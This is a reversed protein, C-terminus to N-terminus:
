VPQNCFEILKIMDDANSMKINHQKVFSKIADARAPFIGQVKRINNVQVYKGDKIVWYTTRSVLKYDDPLKLNFERNGNRIQTANTISGLQTKSGYGLDKGPPLITTKHEIYLAVPTSTAKEFFIDNYPVFVKGALYVTDIDELQALAYKVTDKTFIMEETLTNYNLLASIREGNKKKVIGPIFGKFMYHDIVTANPNDNDDQAFASLTFAAILLTLMMKKM